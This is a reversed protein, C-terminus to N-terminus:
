RWVKEQEPSYNQKGNREWRLYAQVSLLDAPIVVLSRDIPATSRPIAVRFNSDDNKFRCLPCPIGQCQVFSM